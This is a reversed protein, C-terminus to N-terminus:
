KVREAEVIAEFTGIDIVPSQCIYGRGKLGGKLAMSISDTLWVEGNVGPQTKEIFRFISSQLALLGAISLCGDLTLFHNIEDVSPKEVMELIEGKEGLRVVGLDKADKRWYLAIMADPTETNFLSLLEKATSPNTLYTDGYAVLFPDDRIFRKCRWVADATGRPEEQIRYSVDIGLWDGSGLHNMIPEKHVGLVLQVENIGALRLAEILHQIVPKDHIRIMEKPISRTIPHLRSGRGAALVLAKTVTSGM